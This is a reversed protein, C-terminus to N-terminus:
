LFFGEKDEPDFSQLAGAGEKTTGPVYDFNEKVAKGLKKNLVMLPINEPCADECNGCGVCRSALHFARTINWSMNGTEHAPVPIWQPQNKEVICTSCFCMPCAARCAYCKICKSFQEKFFSWREKADMAEVKELDDMNGKILSKNESMWLAAEEVSLTEKDCESVAPILVVNDELIQSELALVVITRIVALDAVIALKKDGRLDKKLYYTALNFKCNEDWILNECDADNKAAFPIPNSTIKDKKFGVVAAVTEDAVLTKAVKKIKDLM